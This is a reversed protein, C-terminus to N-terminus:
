PKTTLATAWQMICTMDAASIPGTLLPMEDGCPPPNKLKDIFLGEAPNSGKVLYPKNGGAAGMCQSAITGGGKPMVGVLKSEWDATAMPFAAAAGM